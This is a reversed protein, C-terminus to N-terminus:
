LWRSILWWALAAAAVLHGPGIFLWWPPRRGGGREAYLYRVIDASEPLWRPEDGEPAIHLVPVTTRGMAQALADRAAPDQHIDRQDIEVGLHQLARQVRACYTCGRFHYLTLRAPASM